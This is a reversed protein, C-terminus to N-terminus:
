PALLGPGRPARRPQRLFRVLPAVTRRPHFRARALELAAASRAEWGRRDRVISRLLAPLERPSSVVWGAREADVPGALELYDNLVIPMGARLFELSRFSASYERELNRESLELGVHSRRLLSEMAGYALLPLRVSRGPLSRDPPAADADAPSRYVYGGTVRVLRAPVTERAAWRGAAALYREGRRWPWDVGASVVQWPGDGRRRRQGAPGALPVVDIPVEPECAFGAVLLWPLLFHRQRETGCLFRDARRLASLLRLTEITVSRGEEFRTELMRPALLDAVVPVDLGGPLSELLEWFGVLIAAPGVRAILRYLEAPGDFPTARTRPPLQARGAAARLGAPYAHVVDIGHAALGRALADARVSNGSAVRDRALPVAHALLLIRV